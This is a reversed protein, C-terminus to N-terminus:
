FKEPMFHAPCVWNFPEKINSRIFNELEKTKWDTRMRYPMLRLKPLRFLDGTFLFDEFLFCSHGPTHGPTHIVKIDDFFTNELSSITASTDTKIFYDFIAKTHTRSKEGQIYPIDLSNIYVPCNYKRQLLSMNGIHDPDHHTLLIKSISYIQLNILENVIGQGATFFGTDILTYGDSAQLLYVASGKTSKLRRVKKSLQMKVEM